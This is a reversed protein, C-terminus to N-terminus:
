WLPLLLAESENPSIEKAYSLVPNLGSLYQLIERERKLGLDQELLLVPYLITM